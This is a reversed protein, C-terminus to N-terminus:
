PRVVNDYPGPVTATHGHVGGGVQAPEAEVGVQAPEAEVIGARRRRHGQVAEMPCVDLPHGVLRQLDLEPLRCRDVRELRDVPDHPAPAAAVAEVEVAREGRQEGRQAVVHGPM